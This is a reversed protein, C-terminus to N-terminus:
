NLLDGVAQGNMRDEAGGFFWDNLSSGYLYDAAATTGDSTSLAGHAHGGINGAKILGRQTENHGVNWATLIDLLAADIGDVMSAYAANGSILLDGHQAYLRDSGAGGILLSGTDAGGGSGGFLIDNGDGGLLIDNGADAYLIDNGAGGRIFDNDAGGHITAPGGGGTITDNGAGGDIFVRESIDTVDITDVGGYGYITNNGTGGHLADDGAAASLFDNGDDGYFVCDRDTAVRAVVVYDNGAGAHVILTGTGATLEGFLFNLTDNDAGSTFTVSPSGTITGCVVVTTGTGMDTTGLDADVTLTGSASVTALSSIFLNDAVKLEITATLPTGTTHVTVGSAITLNEGTGASEFTEILIAGNVSQVGNNVAIASGAANTKLTITGDGVAIVANTSAAGGNSVTMTGGAVIQINGATAAQEVQFVTLANTEDIDINGSTANTAKLTGITTDIDSAGGASGIGLAAALTATGSSTLNASEGATNDTIAGTTATVGIVSSTTTIAGLKVDRNALVTVTGSGTSYVTGNAMTVDNAAATVSITGVDTTTLDGSANHGVGTGGTLVLNGTTSSVVANVTLLTNANLTVGGSGDATVANSLTIGAATTSIAIAKDNATTTVRNGTTIAGGAVIVIPGTSTNGTTGDGLAVGDLETVYTGGTGSNTRLVAAATDINAAGTAGIGTGALMIVTGGTLNATEAGTTDTINGTTGTVTVTGSTSIAGLLVNAAALVTVAGSGTGYVTGDAMAVNAAPATVSITGIGTTTLHGSANHGVGTDGGRLVLDGTGSKVEANVTLAGAANLTVDGSGNATVAHSLTIGGATTSIAIAANNDTTTVTNGTTIAGGAVIVIPGTSTNGGTGDGLAVGDAETVYTGETGSTTRLVTASTDIDNAPGTAGIGTGAVIIVTGGSLNPTEALTADTINGNTGTVTVTGTTTIAGVWVNADATVTVAGSGAQYLTGDAMAVDNATARVSITGIGTTTLNGFEDHEVGTGGTLVLDGAATSSVLAHVILVGAANLTVTGSGQGTVAANIALDNADVDINIQGNGALTVGDGGIILGDTEQVFIDGSTTNTAVLTGITTDIDDSGTAAIGTEATLTATGSTVLNPAEGTLIDTIAGLVSTESGATVNIDGSTSTLLSLAVGATASYTIAGTDSTTTTGTAMTIAGNDATVGVTAASGTTIGAGQAIVDGTVLIAGSTSSVLANIAVTGADANLTVTGSGYATVVAGITLNGADVDVNILGNGTLTRVGTGGITLGNTEQVYIAGSTNTAELTGITTDIDGDGIVGIGTAATLTVTGSSTLNVTTDAAPTVDTIAGTTSTVGIASSTTTIAGLKVNTAALVTVTGTDTGSVTYVTGDVMTVDNLTATVGITGANTTTLDGGDTHTVGTGGTLLLDGTTSSVLADVTILGAATLTVDGSGNATVVSSVTLGNAVVDININGGGGQTRVGAAGIILGSTEQVFINDSTNNTAVLTGIMTDIDGDGTVGIGTEATLTATGSTVLNADEWTAIDTIAGVVSDGSGATVNIAGSTSTLLSLAVGATASYTIAGTDSTTTTGSAMTIAGNDATVGIAGDDTTIGADQTIADGTVVIAGSTSSVLANIDVTGADANLTVTGSGNSTVVANITLNGADVDVNISDGGALTVGTTGGIILGNTEQVFIGGSTSNTAVLIGITTDIDGDGTVGIGMAATLTATGSSSLNAAEGSTTIDTIAGATATVSIASETTTIAGLKVNTGALVTVTGSGTGYVTGDAMTVDNTTATVSITGIDTTTLDGSATHTVGEGGTLVLDGTGSSVVADVTILGAATLTVSGSGLGYATVVDDITLNGDVVEIYISGNGAETVVGVPKGAFGIDPDGITLGAATDRIRIKGTHTEAALTTVDIPLLADFGSGTAIGTGATLEATGAVIKATADHLNVIAGDATIRVGGDAGLSSGTGGKASLVGGLRLPFFNDTLPTNVTDDSNIIEILGAAGGVLGSGTDAGGDANIAAVNIVGMTSVLVKGAKGGAGTANAAGTTVVSGDLTVSGVIVSIMVDGADASAATPTTTISKGSALDVSKNALVNVSGGDTKVNGNLHVDDAYISVPKLSGTSSLSGLTASVTVTEASINAYGAVSTAGSFTLADVGNQGDIILNGVNASSVAVNIADNGGGTLVSLDTITNTTIDILAYTATEPTAPVADGSYYNVGSGSASPICGVGFNATGLDVRLSGATANSISITDAVAPDADALTLPNGSGDYTLNVAMLRRDELHELMLFRKSNRARTTQSRKSERRSTKKSWFKM